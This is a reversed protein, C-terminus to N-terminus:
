RDSAPAPTAEPRRGSRYDLLYRRRQGIFERLNGSGHPSGGATEPSTAAEFAETSTLKRTDEAVADHILARCQEIVPGISEWVLQDEAITRINALYQERLRPVGLLGSRLPKGGDDLGVLPDLDVGGHGPGRGPPGM